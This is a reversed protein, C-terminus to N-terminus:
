VAYLAGLRMAEGILTKDKDGLEIPELSQVSDDIYNMIYFRRIKGQWEIWKSSKVGGNLSIVFEHGNNSIRKLEDITRVQIKEIKQHDTM